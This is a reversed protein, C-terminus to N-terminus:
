PPGTRVYRIPTIGRTVPNIVIDMVMRTNVLNEPDCLAASLYTEASVPALRKPELGSVDGDQGGARPMLTEVRARVKEDNAGIGRGAFVIFACFALFM